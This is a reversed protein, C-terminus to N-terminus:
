YNDRSVFFVLGKRKKIWGAKSEVLAASFEQSQDAGEAWGNFTCLMM